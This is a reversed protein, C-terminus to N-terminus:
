RGCKPCLTLYTKEEPKTMKERCSFKIFVKNVNIYDDGMINYL